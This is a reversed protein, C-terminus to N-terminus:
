RTRAGVPTATAAPPSIPASAPEGPYGPAPQAAPILTRIKAKRRLDLILDKVQDFTLFRIIQPRAAELTIPAEQHRDDIRAVVWGAGVQFPGVVEGVKANRIVADYGPPLLDETVPPLVGGQFRTNEDRSREAALAEFNGGAALLAKVQDAEPKTPVVIQRLRVVESANTNKLMEAYLGKVSNENVVKGVANELVIDGLVRDRAAALRRAVAPDKDLRRRLAEDALLRQDVVEDLVQSFAQSSTDLPEGPGILGQAVAERKVDSAWVTAGNVTAVARDGAEPAITAAKRHHCAGLGLAIMIAAIAAAASGRLRAKM